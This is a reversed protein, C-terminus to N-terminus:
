RQRLRHCGDGVREVLGVHEAAELVLRADELDTGLRQVLAFLLAQTTVTAARGGLQAFLSAFLAPDPGADIGGSTAAENAADAGTCCPGVNTHCRACQGHGHVVVLPGRFGCYPCREVAGSGRESM